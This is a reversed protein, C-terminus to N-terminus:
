RRGGDPDESADPGSLLKLEASAPEAGVAAARCVAVASPCLLRAEAIKGRAKTRCESARGRRESPGIIPTFRSRM